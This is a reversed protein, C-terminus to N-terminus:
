RRGTTRPEAGPVFDALPHDALDNSLMQAGARRVALNPKIELATAADSSHVSISGINRAGQGIKV